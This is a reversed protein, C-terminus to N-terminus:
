GYGGGGGGNNGGGNGYGGDGGPRPDIGFYNGDDYGGNYGGQYGFDGGGPNGGGIRGGNSGGDTLLMRSPIIVTKEKKDKANNAAFLAAAVLFKYLM